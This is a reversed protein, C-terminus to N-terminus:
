DRLPVVIETLLEAEPTDEPGNLYREFPPAEGTAEGSRALWRYTEDWAGPIDAYSGRHLGVAVRGGTTRLREFGAPLATGPAIALAAHSRLDAPPTAHPDDYYFAYAAGAPAVGAARLRPGIEAFVRGIEPYPGRHPLAALEVPEDTRIAAPFM